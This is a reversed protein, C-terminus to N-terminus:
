RFLIGQYKGGGDDSGEVAMRRLEPWLAPNRRCKAALRLFLLPIAM